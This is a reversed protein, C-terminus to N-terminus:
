RTEFYKDMIAQYEKELEAVHNRFGDVDPKGRWGEELAALNIDSIDGRLKLIADFCETGDALATAETSNSIAAFAFYALNLSALFQVLSQLSGWQLLSTAMSQGERWHVIPWM